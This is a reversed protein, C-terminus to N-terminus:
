IFNQSICILKCHCFPSWHNGPFPQAHPHPPNTLSFRSSVKLPFLYIMLKIKSITEHTHIYTLSILTCNLYTYNITHWNYKWLARLFIYAIPSLLSLSMKIHAPWLLSIRATPVENVSHGRSGLTITITLDIWWHTNISCEPVCKPLIPPPTRPTHSM